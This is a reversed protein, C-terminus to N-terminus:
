EYHASRLKKEDVTKGIVDLARGRIRDAVFGGIM